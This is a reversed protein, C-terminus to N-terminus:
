AEIEELMRKERNIRERYEMEKKYNIDDFKWNQGDFYYSHM